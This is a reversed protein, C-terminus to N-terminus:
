EGGGSDGGPAAFVAVGGGDPLGALDAEDKLRAERESKEAASM